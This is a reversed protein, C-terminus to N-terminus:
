KTRRRFRRKERDPLEMAHVVYFLEPDDPDTRTLDIQDWEIDIADVAFVYIVQLYRGNETRGRVRYKNDGIYEPYPTKSRVVVYEAEDPDVHHRAIHGVNKEQWLFSAM